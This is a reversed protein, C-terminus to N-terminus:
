PTEQHLAQRYAATDDQTYTCCIVRDFRGLRHELWAEVAQIAVRAAEHRPYGFVGTSVACFAITRVPAVQAALDLYATYSDVLARRHAVTVPGHVVPGVTHIVFRAPLHYGRTM